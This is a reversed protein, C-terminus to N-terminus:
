SPFVDALAWEAPPFPSERAFCEAEDIRAVVNRDLAGIEERSALGERLLRESLVLIPDRKRWAAVEEKTRYRQPDEHWHGEYRYTMCELLTPGAASRAAEVAEVAAEYVAVVDQGDVLQTRINYCAHRDVVHEACCQEAFPATMGYLNNECVFVVPLKWLSALNLSEHFVGQNAAGDGFFSVAVRDLGLLQSSFAAGLAMPIGGGVIGSCGLVGRERDALHMSGGKGRCLGTAKGLLEAMMAKPDVGKALCHGHGRHTSAIYDEARLAACVGTAVAEEGMYLHCGGRVLDQHRLVAVREEFRRILMMMQLLDLLFARDLSM